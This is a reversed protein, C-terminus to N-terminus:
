NVLHPNVIPIEKGAEQDKGDEDGTAAGGQAIICLGDVSLHLDKEFATGDM